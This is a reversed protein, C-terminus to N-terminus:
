LLIEKELMFSYIYTKLVKKGTIKQLANKYYELQKSYRTKFEEENHLRDSKYDVVILGDDNEFYLDIIGQVMIEDDYSDSDFKFVDKASIYMNFPTEKYIKNSNKIESFLNSNVFKNEGGREQMDLFKFYSSIYSSNIGVSGLKSLSYKPMLATVRPSCETQGYTQVFGISQYKEILMKLKNEPM